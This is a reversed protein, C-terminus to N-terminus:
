QRDRQQVMASTRARVTKVSMKLYVQTLQNRGSEEDNKGTRLMRVPCALVRKIEHSM